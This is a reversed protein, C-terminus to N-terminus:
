KKKRRKDEIEKGTFVDYFGNKVLFLVLFGVAYISDTKNKKVDM